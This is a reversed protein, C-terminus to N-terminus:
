GALTVSIQFDKYYKGIAKTLVGEAQAAKVGALPVAGVRPINVVGNRDIATRVDLDISGWGRIVLQDGVGLLYEGSVPANDLAAFGMGAPAASPAAGSPTAAFRQSYQVNDFFSIGFLPLKYGSTELVFRQFDNPRVQDLVSGYPQVALGGAGEGARGALPATGPLGAAPIDVSRLVPIGPVAAGGGATGYAPGTPAGSALAGLALPNVGQALAGLCFCAGLAFLHLRVSKLSVFGAQVSGASIM